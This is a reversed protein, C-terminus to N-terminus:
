PEGASKTIKGPNRRDFAQVTSGSVHQDFVQPPGNKLAGLPGTQHGKRSTIPAEQTRALHSRNNDTIGVDRWDRLSGSVFMM